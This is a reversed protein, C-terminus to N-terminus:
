SHYRPIVRAINEADIQRLETASFVKSAALSKVHEIMTRFPYDTGFVIQSMPVLQKLATMPIPNSAQATDYFYDKIQDRFSRAMKGKYQSTNELFDFREILFPMTGGAHSWIFKIDPYRRASGTFIWNAIARTTDTGYEIASPPIEPLLNRCCNAATPHVFVVAKRKNLEAFVPDFAPNGIWKDGYSTLINIGDAKLVDLGYAIEALSGDTDPLPVTVFMALKKPDNQVLSAAYDNSVRALHRGDDKDGFWVGPTSVSLISTTVGAQDMEELHKAISWHASPPAILGKPALEAMYAPPTLHAHVDVRPTAQARAGPIPALASAGLAAMGALFGRRPLCCTCAADAHAPDVSQASFRRRTEAKIGKIQM